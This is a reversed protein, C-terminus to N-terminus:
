ADAPAPVERYTYRPRPRYGIIQRTKPDIVPADMIADDLIGLVYEPVFAPVGTQLMFGVGNHGVFLGTPPIDDNDDLVVWKSKPMGLPATLEIAAPPLAITLMKGAQVLQEDTWGAAHYQERTFVEDKAMVFIPEAPGAPPAPPGPPSAVAEEVILDSTNDGLAALTDTDIM